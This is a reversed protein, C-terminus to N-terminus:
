RSYFEIILQVNINESLDELTPMRTFKVYRETVNATLWDPMVFGERLQIKDFSVPKIIDGVKVRYSPINVPKGNVTFINSRIFQRAQARSVAFGSRYVATDLRTELQQMLVEGSVGKVRLAEQVYTNFQKELLGYIRKVKQKERLQKGYESLRGRTNGHQGPAYAKKNMACKESECRTGKLYLKEGERRCLRCKPGNYRAM